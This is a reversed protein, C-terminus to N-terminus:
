VFIVDWILKLSGISVVSVGASLYKASMIWIIMQINTFFEVLKTYNSVALMSSEGNSLINGWFKELNESYWLLKLSRNQLLLNETFFQSKIGKLHLKWIYWFKRVQTIVHHETHRRYMSTIGQLLRQIYEELKAKSILHSMYGFAEIIAIQM